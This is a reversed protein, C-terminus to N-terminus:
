KIQFVKYLFKLNFEYDTKLFLLDSTGISFVQPECLCLWCCLALVELELTCILCLCFHSFSLFWFFVHCSSRLGTPAPDRHTVAPM